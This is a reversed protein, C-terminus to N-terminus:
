NEKIGWMNVDCKTLDTAPTITDKCANKVTSGQLMNQNCKKGYLKNTGETLM